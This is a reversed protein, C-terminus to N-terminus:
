TNNSDELYSDYQLGGSLPTYNFNNHGGMRLTTGWVLPPPSMNNKTRIWDAYSRNLAKDESGISKSWVQM